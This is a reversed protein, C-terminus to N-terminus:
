TGAAEHLGVQSVYLSHDGDGDGAAYAFGMHRLAGCKQHEPQLFYDSRNFASIFFFRSKKTGFIQFHGHKRSKQFIYITGALFPFCFFLQGLSVSTILHCCLTLCPYCSLIHGPRSLLITHSVKGCLSSLFSFFSNIAEGTMRYSPLGSRLLMWRAPIQPLLPIEPHFSRLNTKFTYRTYSLPFSSSFDM